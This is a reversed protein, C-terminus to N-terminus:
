RAAAARVQGVRRAREWGGARESADCGRGAREGVRAAAREGSGRRRRAEDDAQLLSRGRNKRTSNTAPHSTRLEGLTEGSGGKM